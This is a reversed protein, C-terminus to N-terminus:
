ITFQGVLATLRESLKGLEDASQRIQRSNEKVGISRTKVEAVGEALSTTKVSSGAVNESIESLGQSAQGVNRVIESTTISQEEVATVITAVVENVDDIVKAITSIDGITEGTQKQIQEIAVKIKGTAAATQKALEKIENAVVAFGKGAEGARAAEITANLALLNTQESIETITETVTGIAGAAEGLGKVGDQASRATAVAQETTSRARASNEAIERITAGMEESASAIMDLNTTSQEMAASVSNINNSVEGANEAAQDAIATTNDANEVMEGAISSLLRASEALAKSSAAIDRLMERSRQVMTGLANTLQGIADKNDSAFAITYDGEGVKVSKAALEKLPKNISRVMLLTLLVGFAVVVLGVLLNNRLMKRALGGDIDDRKLSAGLYVGWEKLYNVYVVMEEGKLNCNLLGEKHEKLEPVLTFINDNVGLTPHVLVEGKEGYLFFEGPGVKTRLIYEKIQENLMLNGVFIAGVIKKEIDRLPAYATLLWDGVVFAKGRFTEGALIAKYVPSDSAIYTGVARKGDAKKVTTSIRLLKDDVLQFITASSGTLATINDVISVSENLFNVGLQMKPIKKTEAQQTVQNTMTTEYLRDTDSDDIILGGRSKLDNTFLNLDGDLKKRISQDYMLLANYAAQHVDRVAGEGLDHLGQNAMRIALGSSILISVVTITVVAFFLKSTFQMRSFFGTM